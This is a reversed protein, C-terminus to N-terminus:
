FDIQIGFDYMAGYVEYTSHRSTGSLSSIDPQSAINVGSAFISIHDNFRYRLSFDYRLFSEVYRDNPEVRANGVLSRGQFFISFMGSFGGIEYGISTNLIHDPQTLLRGPRFGTTYTNHEIIYPPGSLYEISDLTVYYQRLWSESLAYTYNIRFLINRLPRPM